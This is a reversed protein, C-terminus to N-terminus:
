SKFHARMKEYTEQMEGSNNENFFAFTVKSDMVLVIIERNNDAKILTLTGKAGNEGTFDVTEAVTPNIFKEEEKRISAAGLLFLSAVEPNVSEEVYKQKKTVDSGNLYINVHDLALKQAEVWEKKPKKTPEPKTSGETQGNPSPSPNSSNQSCGALLAMALAAAVLAKKNM